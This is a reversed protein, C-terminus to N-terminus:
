GSMSLSALLSSNMTAAVFRGASPLKGGVFHVSHTSDPIPLTLGGPKFLMKVAMHPLQALSFANLAANIAYSALLLPASAVNEVSSSTEQMFFSFGPLGSREM